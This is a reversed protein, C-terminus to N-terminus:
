LRLSVEMMEVYFLVVGLSVKGLTNNSSKKKLTNKGKAVAKGIVAAKKKDRPLTGGLKSPVHYKYASQYIKSTNGSAYTDAFLM